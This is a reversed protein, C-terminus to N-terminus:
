YTVVVRTLHFFIVRWCRERLLKLTACFVFWWCINRRCFEVKSITPSGYVYTCVKNYKQKFCPLESYFSDRSARKWDRRTAWATTNYARILKESSYSVTDCTADRTAVAYELTIAYCVRSASCGTHSDRYLCAPGRTLWDSPSDRLAPIHRSGRHRWAGVRARDIVRFERRARSTQTVLKVNVRAVSLVLPSSETRRRYIEGFSLLTM